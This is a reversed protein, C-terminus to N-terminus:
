YRSTDRRMEDQASGSRSRQSDADNYPDNAPAPDSACGSIALAALLILTSTKLFARM